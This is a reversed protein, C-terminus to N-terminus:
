HLLVMLDSRPLANGKHDKCPKEGDGRFHM